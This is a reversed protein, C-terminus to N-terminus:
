LASVTETRNSAYMAVATAHGRNSEATHTTTYTRQTMGVLGAMAHIGDYIDTVRVPMPHSVVAVRATYTAACRPALTYSPPVATATIVCKTPVHPQIGAVGTKVRMVATTIDIILTRVHPIDPIAELVNTHQPEVVSTEATSIGYGPTGTDLFDHILQTGVSDSETEMTYTDIVAVLVVDGRRRM